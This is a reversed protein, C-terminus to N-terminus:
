KIFKKTRENRKFYVYAVANFLFMDLHEIDMDFSEKADKDFVDGKLDETFHRMMAAFYRHKGNEVKIWNPNDPNENYKVAGYTMAKAVGEIIEWPVCDWRVKNGSDFKKGTM